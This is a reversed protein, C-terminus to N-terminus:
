LVQKAKWKRKVGKSAYAARNQIGMGRSNFSMHSKAIVKHCLHRWGLKDRALENLAELSPVKGLAKKGEAWITLIM